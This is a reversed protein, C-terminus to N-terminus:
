TRTRATRIRNEEADGAHLVARPALWGIGLATFGGIM